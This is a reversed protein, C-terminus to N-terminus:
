EVGMLEKNADVQARLYEMYQDYGNDTKYQEFDAWIQDFEEESEAQILTPLIEGWKNTVKIGIESEDTGAPPSINDYIGFFASKGERWEDHQAFPEEVETAWALNNQTDAFMWYGNMIKYQADFTTADNARLELIEEKIVPEGDVMDYTEGEVGLFFVKQGEEDNNGWELLQAARDPHETNKSVMTVEWGSYGPVSLTPEDSNSNAPGDVAIYISEPNNNYLNNLPTQADIPQYFLAFYRGQQIKEEIQTRDDIFVDVPISGNEHAQRFTKLWNIYDEDPNGNKVEYYEGDIERPVALFELLMDEFATNGTTTFGTTGYPILPQGNLAEPYAAEADQLAQLFGEPTSMDPSGIAEYIDKRVLFARNSLLGAEIDAETVSNNPYAYTNGDEQQFWKLVDPNLHNELEPAYGFLEQYSYSYEPISLDQVQSLWWGMTVLDPLTNTAILANLKETPDGVPVIFDITIGLEEKITDLVLDSENYTFWSENVYWELTVPDTSIEPAAESSEGGESTDGSATSGEAASSSPTAEGCATLASAAILMSLILASLRKKM